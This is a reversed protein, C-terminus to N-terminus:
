RVSDRLDRHHHARAGRAPGIHGGHRIFRDDDFPLSRNKKTSRGQHFRSGALVDAGLIKASSVNVNAGRADRIMEGGGLFPGMPELLELKGYLAGIGTPAFVKHGSFAYFDCGSARVDPQLHSMAQAGDVLVLAGVDHAAATMEAVPLVTGLVNSVHALSVLRTRPGLLAAFRDLLFNGDADIPAVKIVIGREARLLQWPVINAHHELESIVIEDGVNLRGGLAHAILNISM